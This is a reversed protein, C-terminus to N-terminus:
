AQRLVGSLLRIDYFPSPFGIYEQKTAIISCNQITYVIRPICVARAVFFSDTFEIPRVKLLKLMKRIKSFEVAEHTLPVDRKSNMKKLVGSRREGGAHPHEMTIRIYLVGNKFDVVFIWDFFDETLSSIYKERKKSTSM